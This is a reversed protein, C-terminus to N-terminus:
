PCTRHSGMGDFLLRRRPRGGLHCVYCGADYDDASGAREEKKGDRGKDDGDEGEISPDNEYKDGEEGKSGVDRGDIFSDDDCDNDNGDDKEGKDDDEDQAVPRRQM